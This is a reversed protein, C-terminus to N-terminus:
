EVSIIYSYHTQGGTQMEVQVEPFADQLRPLLAAADSQSTEAGHYLAIIEPTKELQRLAGEIVDGENSGVGTIDGDVVAIVDGETITM